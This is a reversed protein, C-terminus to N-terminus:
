AVGELRREQRAAKLTRRHELWERRRVASHVADVADMDEVLEDHTPDASWSRAEKLVEELPKEQAAAFEQWLYGRREPGGVSFLYPHPLYRLQGTRRCRTRALLRHKVLTQVYSSARTHQIGQRKALAATTISIHGTTTDVYELLVALFGIHGLNLVKDRHLTSLKKRGIWHM